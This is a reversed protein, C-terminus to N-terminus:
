PRVGWLTMVTSASGALAFWKGAFAASKMCDRVEDSSDKLYRNLSRPRPGPVVHGGDALALLGQAAGFLLSERVFPSLARARDAFGVRFFANEELWAALSTRPSRPLAERTAKHLTIPAIIFALTFPMGEGENAERFGGAASWTLLGLFGPNLLSAEETSREHWLRV